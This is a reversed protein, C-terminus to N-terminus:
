SKKEREERIAAHAAALRAVPIRIPSCSVYQLGIQHCFEVSAPDGAHEGCIGTKLTPRSRKGEETAMKMLRGVGDPDITRFPDAPLIGREVYQRILDQTDSRSFGYTMQTLDNTGFSFFEADEAIEGATLAARPVEIMTGIMYPIKKGLEGMVTEAEKRVIGSVYCFETHSVTLPILIEPQINYGFEGSVRIAATVIARTQMKATEPYEVALRIGRKGLMPNMERLKQVQRKLMRASVGSLEAYEEFQKETRPLFDQLPPDFLRITVPRDEMVRFMEEFDKQQFPLLKRLADEREEKDSALIMERFVSIRDKDFFMHESRCLGIGEAGFYVAQRAADPTDANTRIRMTRFSDAWEMITGFDGLFDPPTLSVMGEYITGTVGDLSLIDGRQYIKQGIRLIGREKDISANDIDSICCKGMGRALEAGQSRIGGHLLLIGQADSFGALLEPTPNDCVLVANKQLDKWRLVDKVSFCIGGYAAGASVGIGQAAAHAKKLDAKDFQAHVMKEAYEPKIRMVAEKQDIRKERVLDVAIKVAAQATRKESKTQLVYLRGHQVTFEIKQADLYHNELIECIHSLTQYVEPFTEQMSDVPRVTRVGLELDEGQANPLFGGCLEKEGTEPDRTYVYGAGSDAGLNGFVMSQVNVAIGVDEPVNNERRYKKLRDENWSRYVADFAKRLQLAPDQPFPEGTEREVIDQYSRVLEKMSEASLEIMEKADSRKKSELLVDQFREKPIGMVIVGYMEILRRYSDYAFKENGTMRSLAEVTDDNLGLNLIATQLGPIPVPYGPRVSILLPEKENGLKQGSVNELDRIKEQIEEQIEPALKGEQKYRVSVESTVTFGFPVPLGIRTMEALNA